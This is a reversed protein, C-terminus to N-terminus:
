TLPLSSIERSMEYRAWAAPRLEIPTRILSTEQNRPAIRSARKVRRARDGSSNRSGQPRDVVRESNDEVLVDSNRADGRPGADTNSSAGTPATGGSTSAPSAATNRSWRLRAVIETLEAPDALVPNAEARELRGEPDAGSATVTVVSVCTVITATLCPGYGPM